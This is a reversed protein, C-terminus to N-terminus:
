RSASGACRWRERASTVADSAGDVASCGHGTRVTARLSVSHILRSPATHTSPWTVWTEARGPVDVANRVSRSGDTSMDIDSVLGIASTRFMSGGSVSPLRTTTCPFGVNKAPRPVSLRRTSSIRATPMPSSSALISRSRLSSPASPRNSGRRLRLGGNRGLLIPRIVPRADAASRSTSVFARLRHGPARKRTTFTATCPGVATGCIRVASDVKSRSTSTSTM